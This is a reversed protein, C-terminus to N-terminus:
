FSNHSVLLHYIYFGGSYLHWAMLAFGGGFTLFRYWPKKKRRRFDAFSRLFIGTMLVWLLLATSMSAWNFNGHGLRLGTERFFMAELVSIGVTLLTIVLMKDRFMNKQYCCLLAYLPFGAMILMSRVAAWVTEASAGFSVGSSFPVVVGTYYLYQLLFYLAAPLFALIIQFFYRHNHPHRIWEVLFFVAAAPILAQMFTPKCALSLVLLTALLIIKSWPLATKNKMAPLLRDFEYWCHSLYPVCLFMSVIAMLQTPNHWVTPSGVGKYVFPNFWPLRLGTVFMLLFAALTLVYRPVRGATIVELLKYALWMGLTKAVACVVASAWVLPVGVQYLVAVCLHWLPYALRSTISHLDTFDFESAIVAHVHLDTNDFQFQWSYMYLSFFFIAACALFFPYNRGRKTKSLERAALIPDLTM